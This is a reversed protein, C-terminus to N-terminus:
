EAADLCILNILSIRLKSIIFGYCTGCMRHNAEIQGKPSNHTVKHGDFRLSNRQLSYVVVIFM